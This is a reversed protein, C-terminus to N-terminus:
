HEKCLWQSREPRGREKKSGTMGYEPRPYAYPISIKQEMPGRPIMFRNRLEGGFNKLVLIASCGMRTASPLDIVYNAKISTLADRPAPLDSVNLHLCRVLSILPTMIERPKPPLYPDAVM